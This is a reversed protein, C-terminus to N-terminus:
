YLLTSHQHMKINPKKHGIKKVKKGFVLKGIFCQLYSTIYHCKKTGKKICHPNKQKKRKFFWVVLPSVFSM